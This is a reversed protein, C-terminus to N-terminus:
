EETSRVQDAIEELTRGWYIPAALMDDWATFTYSDDTIVQVSGTDAYLVIDRDGNESSYRFLVDSYRGYVNEYIEDVTM